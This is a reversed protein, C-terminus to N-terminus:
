VETEFEWRYAGSDSVAKLPGGLLGSLVVEYRSGPRLGETPEFRLTTTEDDFVPSERLAVVVGERLVEVAGDLQLVSRLIPTDFRAEIRGDGIVVQTSSAPITAVLQPVRTRFTWADVDEVRNGALDTLVSSVEVTYQSGPALGGDPTVSVSQAASDYAASVPITVGGLRLAFNADVVTAADLAESFTILIAASSSAEVNEQQDQPTRDRIAPRVADVAFADTADFPTLINGKGDEADRVSITAAGSPTGDAVTLEGSWTNGTFQLETFELTEGDILATVTPHIAPNVGAHADGIELALSVTQGLGVQTRNLALNSIEPAITDIIFTQEGAFASGRFGVDKTQVSWFYTGSELGDVRRALAHGTNAETLATHGSVVDNGGPTTGVRLNYTLSAAPPNGDDSGALWGFLVTSGADEANLGAPPLPAVNANAQQATLNDNVVTAPSQSLSRGSSVLDLDGDGDADAMAIASFDVGSLIPVNILEFLSDPASQGITNEWVQLIATTGNNGAMILDLDQDNDYDAWALDGGRIGPFATQSPTFAGLGDNDLLDTVINNADDIGSLVVDLDGDRDYDGLAIDSSERGDIGAGVNVLGDALDNRYLDVRREGGSSVGSQMLDLDGDGDTDGLVLDGNNLGELGDDRQVFTGDSENTWIRTYSQQVGNDVDASRGAYVLDLDGDLDIDGWAVSSADLDLPFRLAASFDLSDDTVVTVNYLFNARNGEAIHGSSFLDLDGDNDYDGWAIDGETLATLGSSADLDLQGSRNIYVLTQAEGSRNTGMLVLDDDGDADADGWAMAANTMGRLSQDSSVFQGVNFHGETAFDSRALAGDVAQVSWYYTDPALARDLVYSTKYG